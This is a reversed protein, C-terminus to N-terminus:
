WWCMQSNVSASACSELVRERWLSAYRCCNACKAHECGPLPEGRRAELSWALSDASALYRACRALGLIKFGFGHLQIGEAHLDRVLAEVMGTSQRRCVSGLGVRSLRALQVGAARYQEVHSLYDDYRWGQLVPVWPLEPALRVLELYNAVTFAQHEAVGKGTKELIWPECMWDQAAAWELRGIGAAWTRVEEVYQEPSVTWQGHQSLQTFGGSDLAWPRQAVLRTKKKRALRIRSIFLPWEGPIQVWHPEHTGLYFRVM